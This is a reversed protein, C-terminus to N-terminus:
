QRRDSAKGQNVKKVARHEQENRRKNYQSSPKHEKREHKHRPPNAKKLAREEIAQEKAKVRVLEYLKRINCKAEPVRYDLENQVKSKLGKPLSSVILKCKEKAGREEEFFSTFM